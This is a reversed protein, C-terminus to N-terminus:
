QKRDEEAKAERALKVLEWYPAEYGEAKKFQEAKQVLREGIAQHLAIYQETKLAATMSMGEPIPGAKGVLNLSRSYLKVLHAAPRLYGHYNLDDGQEAGELMVDTVANDFRDQRLTSPDRWEAVIRLQPYYELDSPEQTEFHEM